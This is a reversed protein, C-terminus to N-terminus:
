IKNRIYMWLYPRFDSISPYIRLVFSLYLTVFLLLIHHNSFQVCATTLFTLITTILVCMLQTSITLFADNSCCHLLCRFINMFYKRSCNVRHCAILILCNYVWSGLTSSVQVTSGVTRCGDRNRFCAFSSVELIGVFRWM